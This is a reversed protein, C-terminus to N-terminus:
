KNKRNLSTCFNLLLGGHKSYDFNDLGMQRGKLGIEKSEEPHELVFRMKEAFSYINYDKAVFATEKDTFDYHNIEGYATTIMPRGSALYEGIKHPFRAEDQPTPRLPILLASANSFRHPIEKHALNVTLRIHGKNEAKEIRERARQLEAEKGGLILELVIHQDPNKLQDFADLVFEILEFYSAAGCYLFITDTSRDATFLFKEFDCLIPLKLSPKSPSVAGYYEMLKNSIPLAGDVIRIIYNDYTYDNLRTLLADRGKMSSALEVFNLIIPFGILFSYFRYRLLHAASMNSIIAANIKDHRKLNKLCKFEGYMGRLKEINRIFFGKPRHVSKSTYLYHIGEFIGEKNFDAHANNKWVGKRCIVTVKCGKSRLSKAMLIMRQVAGLGYPFGTEGLFVIHDGTNEIDKQM